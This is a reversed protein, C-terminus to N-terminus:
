AKEAYRSVDLDRVVRTWDEDGQAMVDACDALVAIRVAGNHPYSGSNGAAEHSSRLHEPMTEVVVLDALTAPGGECRQGLVEGCRCRYLTTTANTKAM